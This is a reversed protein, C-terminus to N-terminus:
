LLIFTLEIAYCLRNENWPMCMANRVLEFELHGALKSIKFRQPHIDRWHCTCARHHAVHELGHMLRVCRDRKSQERREL